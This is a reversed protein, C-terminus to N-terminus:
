FLGKRNASLNGYLVGGGQRKREFMVVAVFFLVIAIITYVIRNVAFEGSIKVFAEYKGFFNFRPILNWGAQGRINASFVSIFWVFAQLLIGFIKGTLVSCLMGISITVMTTPLLWELLYGFYLLCDGTVGLSGALFMAHALLISGLVFVPLISVALLALYKSVLLRLSSVKKSYIVEAAKAKKDRLERSVALFVPLIGVMLGMYDCFLRAYAGTVKDDKLISQYDKQAQEYTMPVLANGALNDKAYSSGGGLLKDIKGMNDEFIEYTMGKAFPLQLPNERQFKQTNEMDEEYNGTLEPCGVWYDTYVEELKDVSLGSVKEIIECVEEQKKQSLKVEKYFGVPYTAYQNAGYERLLTEMTQNMIVQPDDSYIMGFSKDTKKPETVVPFDSFQTLFFAALLLVYVYFLVSKFHMKCEKWFLSCVM